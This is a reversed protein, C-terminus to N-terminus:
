WPILVEYKTHVKVILLVTSTSVLDRGGSRIAEYDSYDKLTM